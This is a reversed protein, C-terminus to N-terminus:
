DKMQRGGLMEIQKRLNKKFDDFSMMESDLTVTVEQGTQGSTQNIFAGPTQNRVNRLFIDILQSREEEARQDASDTQVNRPIFFAVLLLLSIVIPFSYGMDARGFIEAKHKKKKQILRDNISLKVHDHLFKQFTQPNQM